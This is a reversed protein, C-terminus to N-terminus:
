WLTPDLEARPRRRMYTGSPNGAIGGRVTPDALFALVHDLKDPHRPNLYDCRWGAEVPYTFWVGSLGGTVTEEIMVSFCGKRAGWPGVGDVAKIFSWGHKRAAQKFESATRYTPSM